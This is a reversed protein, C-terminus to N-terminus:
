WLCFKFNLHETLEHTKSLDTGDECVQDTEGRSIVMGMKTPSLRFSPNPSFHLPFTKRNLSSQWKGLELDILTMEREVSHVVELYTQTFNSHFVYHRCCFTCLLWIMFCFQRSWGHWVHVCIPRGNWTPGLLLSHRAKWSAETCMTALDSRTTDDTRHHKSSQNKQDPLTIWGFQILWLM